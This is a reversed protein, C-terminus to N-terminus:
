GHKTLHGCQDVCSQITQYGRQCLKAQEHSRIQEAILAVVGDVCSWGGRM